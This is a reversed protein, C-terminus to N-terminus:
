SHDDIIAGIEEATAIVDIVFEFSANVIFDRRIADDLRDALANLRSEVPGTMPAIEVASRLHANIIRLDFIEENARAIERNFTKRVTLTKGKRLERLRKVSKELSSIATDNKEILSNISPPM